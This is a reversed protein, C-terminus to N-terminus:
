AERLVTLTDPLVLMKRLRQADGQLRWMTREDSASALKSNVLELEDRLYKEVEPWRAVHVRDM